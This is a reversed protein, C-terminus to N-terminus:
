SWAARSRGAQGHAGPEEGAAEIVNRGVRLGDLVAEFRGDPRVEFRRTVDRGNLSVRVQRRKLGKVKAVAVRVDGGSVLDPRNSM